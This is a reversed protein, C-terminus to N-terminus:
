DANAGEEQVYEWEVGPRRIMTLGHDGLLFITGTEQRSAQRTVNTVTTLIRAAASTDIVQVDQGQLGASTKAAHLAVGRYGSDSQMEVPEPASNQVKIVRPAKPKHLNLLASGSGDRFRILEFASGLYQQFDYVRSIGTDLVAALKVHTPETDDLIVLRSGQQQELYLYANGVSNSYLFIDQSAERAQEPLATPPEVVINPNQKPGHKSAHGLQAGLILAISLVISTMFRM